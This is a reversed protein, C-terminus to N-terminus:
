VIILVRLDKTSKYNSLLKKSQSRIVKRVGNFELSSAVLSGFSQRIYDKLDYENVQNIIKQNKFTYHAKYDLLIPKKSMNSLYSSTWEVTVVNDNEVINKITIKHDSINDIVFQIWYKADDGEALFTAPDELKIDDSFYSNMKASDLNEYAEFLEKIIQTNNM